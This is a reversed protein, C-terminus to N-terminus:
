EKALEALKKHVAELIAPLTTSNQGGAAAAAKTIEAALTLLSDKSM